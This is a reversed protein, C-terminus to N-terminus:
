KQLCMFSYLGITNLVELWTSQYEEWSSVGLAEKQADPVWEFLEEFSVRHNLHWNIEENDSFFNGKVQM